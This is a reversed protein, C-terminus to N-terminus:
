FILGILLFKGNITLTANVNLEVNIGGLINNYPYNCVMHFPRDEAVVRNYHIWIIIGSRWHMPLRRPLPM